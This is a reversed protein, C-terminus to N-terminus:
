NASTSFNITKNWAVGDLTGTLVLTYNSNADLKTDPVLVIENAKLNSPSTTSSLTNLALAQAVGSKNLSSSTVKLVKGTPAMIAIPAGMPNAAYNRGPFPDPVENGVFSTPVSSGDCPYTQVGTVDQAFGSTSGKFLLAQLSQGTLARATALYAVGVDRNPRLLGVLHYPAVMLRETALLGYAVSGSVQVDFEEDVFTKDAPSYGAFIARDAPTVGTFFADVLGKVENHEVVGQVPQSVYAAHAAAAKDLLANQKLLGFGCGGRRENLLTIAALEQSGAAYTFAPVSTQLSKDTTIVPTQVVPTQVVPTQMAPTTAAPTGSDGGGGGCATLSAAISVAALTLKTNM